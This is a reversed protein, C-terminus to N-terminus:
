MCRTLANGSDWNCSDIYISWYNWARLGYASWCGGAKACIGRRPTRSSYCEPPWIPIRAQRGDCSAQRLLEGEFICIWGGSGHSTNFVGLGDCRCCVLVLTVLVHWSVRFVQACIM